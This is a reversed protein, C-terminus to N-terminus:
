FSFIGLKTNSCGPPICVTLDWWQDIEDLDNYNYSLTRSYDDVKITITRLFPNVIAEM